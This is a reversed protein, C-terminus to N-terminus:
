KELHLMKCSIVFYKSTDVFGKDFELASIITCIKKHINFM